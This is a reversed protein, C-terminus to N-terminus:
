CGCTQESAAVTTAVVPVAPAPHLLSLAGSALTVLLALGITLEALSCVRHNRRSAITEM